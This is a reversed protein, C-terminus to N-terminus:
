GTYDNDKMGRELKKRQEVIEDLMKKDESTLYVQNGGLTIFARSDGGMRDIDEKTWDVMRVDYMDANYWYDLLYAKGFCTEIIM